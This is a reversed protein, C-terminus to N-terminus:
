TLMKRYASRYNVLVLCSKINEIKVLYLMLNRWWGENKQSRRRDNFRSTSIIAIGLNGLIRPLNKAGIYVRVGPKSVRKLTTIIPTRRKGTYKLSILITKDKDESVMEYDQIFGESKLITVINSTMKTFPVEVFHHKANNANRIRTLMDSITDNVM